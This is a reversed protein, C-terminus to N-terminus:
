LCGELRRYLTVSNLKDSPNAEGAPGNQKLGSFQFAVYINKESCFWPADEQGIKILDDYVSQALEKREVCCMRAIKSGQSHLYDEVEKRTMGPKLIDLYSRLVVQYAAERRQQARKTSVRWCVFAILGIFVALVLLQWRKM